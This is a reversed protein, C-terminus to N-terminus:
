GTIYSASMKVVHWVGGAGNGATVLPGAPKYTYLPYGNYTIQKGGGARSVLAFTGPITDAPAVQPMGTVPAWITACSGTCTPRGGKHDKDYTYVVYGNGLTLVYGLTSPRIMLFTTGIPPISEPPGGYLNSSPQPGATQHPSAASTAAAKTSKTGTAPTTVAGSSAPASSSQGASTSQSAPGSTSGSSGGCAALLLVLSGLGAAAWGSKRM